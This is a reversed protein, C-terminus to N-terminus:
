VFQWSHWQFVRRGSSFATNYGLDPMKRWLNPQIYKSLHKKVYADFKGALMEGDSDKMELRKFVEDKAGDIVTMLMESVAFQANYHSVM